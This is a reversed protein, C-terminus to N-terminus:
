RLKCVESAEEIIKKKQMKSLGLRDLVGEKTHIDKCLVVDRKLLKEQNTRSLTTLCTVPHLGIDEVLKELGGEAPYRWGILKMGMCEGYKIADQSFGTNTVIWQHHSKHTDGKDELRRKVDLFRSHIYLPVKVDTVYSKRNHFKCEVFCHENGNEAIVDIEHDVCHGKVVVGVQVQYGHHALIEAVFREFPYGTPGLQMIAQKLSYRAAIPREGEKKLMAFAERYVDQTTMGSHLKKAVEHAIDKALGKNAGSRMLSEVIKHKKFAVLDGSANTIKPRM